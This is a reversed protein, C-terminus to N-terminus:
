VNNKKNNIKDMYKKCQKTENFSEITILIPFIFIWIICAILCWVGCIIDIISRLLKSLIGLFTGWHFISYYIYEYWKMKAINSTCKRVKEDDIIYRKM